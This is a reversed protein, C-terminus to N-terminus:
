MDTEYKLGRKLILLLKDYHQSIKKYANTYEDQNKKNPWKTELFVNLNKYFKDVEKITEDDYYIKVLSCTTDVSYEISSFKEFLLDISDRYKQDNTEKFKYAKLMIDNYIYLTQWVSKSLILIMENRMKQLELQYDIKEQREQLAHGLKTQTYPILLVAIGLASIEIGLKIFGLDVGRLDLNPHKELFRKLRGKQYTM